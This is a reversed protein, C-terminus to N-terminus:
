EKVHSFNQRTLYYIRLKTETRMTHASVCVLLRIYVCMCARKCKDPAYVGAFVGCTKHVYLVFSVRVSIRACLCVLVCMCVCVCVCGRVCVCVCASM